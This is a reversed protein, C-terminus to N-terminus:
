AKPQIAEAHGLLNVADKYGDTQYNSFGEFSWGDVLHVSVCIGDKTEDTEIYEVRYDGLLTKEAPSLDYQPIIRKNM